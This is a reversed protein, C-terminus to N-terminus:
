SQSFGSSISRATSVRQQENSECVHTNASLCQRGLRAKCHQGKNACVHANASLRQRGRRAKCRKGKNACIHANGGEGPRAASGKTPAYTLTAERAPGQLAARQQRMHSRQQHLRAETAEASEGHVRRWRGERESQLRREREVATETDRRERYCM